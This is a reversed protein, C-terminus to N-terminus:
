TPKVVEEIYYEHDDFNTSARKYWSNAETESEFPGFVVQPMGNDNGKPGMMEIIIFM